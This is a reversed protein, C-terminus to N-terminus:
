ARVIEQLLEGKIRLLHVLPQPIAKILLPQHAFLDCLQGPPSEQRAITMVLRLELRQHIVGACKGLGIGQARPNGQGGPLHCRKGAIDDPQDLLVDRKGVPLRRTGQHRLDIQLHACTIQLGIAGQETALLHRQRECAIQGIAAGDGCPLM